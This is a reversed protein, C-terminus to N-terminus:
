KYIREKLFEDEEVDCQVTKCSDEILMEDITRCMDKFQAPTLGSQIHHIKLDTSLSFHREIMDVGMLYALLTASYGLEHGSYGVKVFDSEYQKIKKIYNINSRGIPTPYISVTHLIYTKIKSQNVKKVLNELYDDTKGGLSVVFPKGEEKCTEIVKDILIQNESDMSAVKYMAPNLTKIFELGKLDHITSFWEIGIEGCYESLDKIDDQSLELSKRYSKFNFNRWKKGDNAYYDDVSKYKLKVMTAGSEQASKVMAKAINVMGLHNISLEAVIIPKKM